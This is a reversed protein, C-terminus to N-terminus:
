LSSPLKSVKPFYNFTKISKELDRINIEGLIETLFYKSLFKARPQLITVLLVPSGLSVVWGPVAEQVGSLDAPSVVM